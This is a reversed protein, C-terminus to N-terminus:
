FIAECAVSTQYENTGVPLENSIVIVPPILEGFTPTHVPLQPANTPAPQSMPFPPFKVVVM